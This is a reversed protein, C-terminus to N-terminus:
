PVQQVSRPSLPLHHILLDVVFLVVGPFCHVAVPFLAAVVNAVFLCRSEFEFRLVLGDVVEQVSAFSGSRALVMQVVVAQQVHIYMWNDSSVM